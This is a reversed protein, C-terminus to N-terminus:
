ESSLKKDLEEIALIVGEIKGRKLRNNVAQPSVGLHKAIMKQSVGTDIMMKRAKKEADSRKIKKM